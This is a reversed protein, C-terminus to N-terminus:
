TGPLFSARSSLTRPFTYAHEVRRLFLWGPNKGVYYGTLYFIHQAKRKIYSSVNFADHDKNLLAILAITNSYFIGCGLEHNKVIVPVFILM